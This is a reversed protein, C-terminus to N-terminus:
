PPFSIYYHASFAGPFHMFLLPLPPHIECALLSFLGTGADLVDALHCFLREGLSFSALAPLSM